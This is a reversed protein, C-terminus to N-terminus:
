HDSPGMLFLRWSIVLSKVPKSVLPFSRSYQVWLVLLQPGSMLQIGAVFSQESGLAVANSGVEIYESGRVLKTSPDSIVVDFGVSIVAAASHCSVGCLVINPAEPVSTM